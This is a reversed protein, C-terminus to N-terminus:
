LKLHRAGGRDKRERSVYLGVGFAAAAILFDLPVGSKYIDMVQMPCNGQQQKWKDVKSKDGTGGTMFTRYYISSVSHVTEIPRKVESESDGCYPESETYHWYKSSDDDWTSTYGYVPRVIFYVAFGVLLLAPIGFLYTQM